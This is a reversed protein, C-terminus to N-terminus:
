TEHKVFLSIENALDHKPVYIEVLNIKAYRAVEEVIATTKGIVAPATIAFNEDSNNMWYSVFKRMQKQAEERSIYELREYYPEM